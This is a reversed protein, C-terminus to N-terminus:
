LPCATRDHICLNKRSERNQFVLSPVPSMFEVAGRATNVKELVWTDKCYFGGWELVWAQKRSESM